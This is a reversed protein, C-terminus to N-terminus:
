RHPRDVQLGSRQPWSLRSLRSPHRHKACSPAYINRPASGNHTRCPGGSYGSRSRRYKQRGHFRGNRQYRCFRRRSISFRGHLRRIRAAPLDLCSLHQRSQSQTQLYGGADLTGDRPPSFRCIRLRHTVTYRGRTTATAPDGGSKASCCRCRLPSLM